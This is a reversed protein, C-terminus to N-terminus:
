INSEATRDCISLEAIAREAILPYATRRELFAVGLGAAGLEPVFETEIGVYPVHVDVLNVSGDDAEVAAKAHALSVGGRALARVAPIVQLDALYREGFHGILRISLL